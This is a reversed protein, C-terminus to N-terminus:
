TQLKTKIYYTVSICISWLIISFIISKLYSFSNLFYYLSTLYVILSPISILTYLVISQLTRSSVTKGILVFSVISIIPFFVAVGTLFNNGTKSLLLIFIVLSGSIFFKLIYELIV